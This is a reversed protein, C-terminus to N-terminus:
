HIIFSLNINTFLSLIIILFLCKGYSASSGEKYYEAEYDDYVHSTSYSRSVPPLSTSYHGYAPESPEYPEEYGYSEEMAIRARDLISMIKTKAPMVRPTVVPARTATRM